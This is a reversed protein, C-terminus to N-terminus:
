SRSPTYVYEFQVHLCAPEHSLRLNLRSAAFPGTGGQFNRRVTVLGRPRLRLLVQLFVTPVSPFNELVVPRVYKPGISQLRTTGRTTTDASM